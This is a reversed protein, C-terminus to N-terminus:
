PQGELEGLDAPGGVLVAVDRRGARELVSAASMAREGHSCHMLVPGNPADDTERTLNGFEVPVAGPLHGSAFEPRQGIDLIRWGGAAGADVLPTPTVSRGAAEWADVGGAFEGVLHEFGVTLAAWVLDDRRVTDDVVFVVPRTRPVLWGLCTALQARWLISLAGAVHGAALASISRVNVIEAGDAAAADVEDVSLQPLPPPTPGHVAPGTRNVDHLELFYPPYSGYGGLLRAVFTDEDPDGTLLPNLAWEQAIHTTREGGPAAFCFSGGGHTPYVPCTM